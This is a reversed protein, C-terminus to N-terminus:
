IGLKKLKKDRLISDNHLAYLSNKTVLICDDIIINVMSTHWVHGNITFIEGVKPYDDAFGILGLKRDKSFTNRYLQNIIDGSSKLISYNEDSKFYESVISVYYSIIEDGDSIVMITSNSTDEKVSPLINGIKLIKLKLGKM